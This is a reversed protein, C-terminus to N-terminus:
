TKMPLGFARVDWAATNSAAGFPMADFRYDSSDNIMVGGADIQNAVDLAEELDNTFIGAHLSYEPSNALQIAEDLEDFPQLIVIPAFVEENWLGCSAPVNELM